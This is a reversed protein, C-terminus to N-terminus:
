SPPLTCPTFGEGWLQDPRTHLLQLERQLKLSLKWAHSTSISRCRLQEPGAHGTQQLAHGQWANRKKNLRCEGGAPASCLLGSSTGSQHLPSGDICPRCLM